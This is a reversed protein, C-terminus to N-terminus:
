DRQTLSPDGAPAVAHWTAGDVSGDCFVRTLTLGLTYRDVSWPKVLILAEKANDDRRVDSVLVYDDPTQGATALGHVDEARTFATDMCADEVPQVFVGDWGAQVPACGDGPEAFVPGTLVAGLVAMTSLAAVLVQLSRMSVAHASYARHRGPGFFARVSRKPTHGHEPFGVRELRRAM